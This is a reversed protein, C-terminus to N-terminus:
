SAGPQLRQADAFARGQSCEQTRSARPWQETLGEASFCLQVFGCDRLLLPDLFVAADSVFSLLSTSGPAQGRVTYFHPTSPLRLCLVLSRNSMLSFLTSISSVPYRPSAM